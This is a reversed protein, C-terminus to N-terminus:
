CWPGDCEGVELRPGDRMECEIPILLASETVGDVM